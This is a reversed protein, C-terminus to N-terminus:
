ISEKIYTYLIYEKIYQVKKTVKDPRDLSLSVSLTLCLLVSLCFSFFLSVLPFWARGTEGKLPKKEILPAVVDSAASADCEVVELYYFFNFILREDFGHM